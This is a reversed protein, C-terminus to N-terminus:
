QPNGFRDFKAETTRVPIATELDAVSEGVVGLVEGLVSYLQAVEELNLGWSNTQSTFPFQRTLTYEIGHRQDREHAPDISFTSEGTV